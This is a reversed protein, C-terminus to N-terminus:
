GRTVSILVAFEDGGLGPSAGTPHWRVRCARAGGGEASRRGRRARPHRQDGQLPRRRDPRGRVQPTDGAAQLMSELLENFQLRNPLGTLSDQKALNWLQQELRKRESIEETLMMMGGITGDELHWPRVEWRIINTSGDARRFVEEPSSETAGALIRQHKVKWHEPM